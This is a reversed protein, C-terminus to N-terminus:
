SFCLLCRLLPLPSGHPHPSGDEVAGHPKEFNGCPTSASGAAFVGATVVHHHNPDTSQNAPQDELWAAACGVFAALAILIGGLGIAIRRSTVTLAM